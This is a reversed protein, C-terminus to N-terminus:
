ASMHVNVCTQAGMQARRHVHIRGDICEEICVYAHGRTWVNGSVTDQMKIRVYRICTCMEYVTVYVYCVSWTSMYM